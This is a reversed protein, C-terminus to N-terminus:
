SPRLFLETLFNGVADLLVVKTTGARPMHRVFRIAEPLSAFEKIWRPCERKLVFRRACTDAYLRLEEEVPSRPATM